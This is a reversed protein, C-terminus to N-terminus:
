SSELFLNMIRLSAEVLEVPSCVVAILSWNDRTTWHGSSCSARGRGRARNSGAQILIRPPLSLLLARVRMNNAM